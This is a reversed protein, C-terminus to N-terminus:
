PPPANKVDVGEECEASGVNVCENVEAVQVGNETIGGGSSGVSVKPSLCNEALVADKIWNPSFAKFSSPPWSLGSSRSGVFNLSILM